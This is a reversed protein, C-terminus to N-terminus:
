VHGGALDLLVRVVLKQLLDLKFHNMPLTRAGEASARAANEFSESGPPQSTLMAEVSSPLRWPTTGVGGAALRATRIMGSAKDFSLVAAVSVIAFSFSSRDGLKMYCSRSGSEDSRAHLEVAEILDGSLLTHERDPRDGPPLYLGAIPVRRTGAIGRVLISADLATLAVALDSAHTAICSDSTGFIAHNRHDGGIAPCGSGPVRKNCPTDADRFYSCRTRQLLNGGITAVNRVQPSASSLLSQSLAPWRSRIAQDDAVDAMRALAGIRAGGDRLVEVRDLGPLHGISVFHAPAVARSRILQVLDTGGALFAAGPNGALAVAETADSAKTYEVSPVIRVEKFSLWRRGSQPWSTPTRVV